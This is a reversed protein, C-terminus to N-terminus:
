EDSACFERLKLRDSQRHHPVLLGSPFVEEDSQPHTRTRPSLSVLPACVFAEVRPVATRM